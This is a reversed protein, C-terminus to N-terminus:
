VHARGIQGDRVEVELTQGTATAIASLEVKARSLSEPILNTPLEAAAWTPIEEVVNLLIIKAGAAAHQAAIDINAKGEVAHAMDIPVLITKFMSIEV